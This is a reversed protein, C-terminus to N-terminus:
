IHFFIIYEGLPDFITQSTIIVVQHRIIEDRNNCVLPFKKKALHNTLFHYQIIRAGHHIPANLHYGMLIFIGDDYAMHHHGVMNVEQEM